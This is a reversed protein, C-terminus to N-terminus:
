ELRGSAQNFKLLKPQGATPPQMNNRNGSATKLTKPKSFSESSKLLQDLGANLAQPNTRFNGLVDHIGKVAYEGRTGHIGALALGGGEMAARVTQADPDQSGLWVELDTGRGSAPGFLDPRKAIVGKIANINEQANGALDIKDRQKATPRVNEANATGIPTDNEDLLAGPLANGAGDTGYAHMAYQKESLGLRGIATQANQASIQLRRQAQQILIPQNKAKADTLQKQAEALEQRSQLYDTMAQQKQYAPSAEDPVVSTTGDGNDVVKLGHQAFTGQAQLGKLSANQKKIALEEPMQQTELTTKNLNAQGEANQLASTQAAQDNEIRGQQEHQLYRNHLTTGPIAAAGGGLIFPAVIDGAKALGRLLPNHIQNLGAGNQKLRQLEAQDTALNTGTMTPPAVSAMPAMPPPASSAMQQPQQDPHNPQLPTDPGTMAPQVKHANMPDSAWQQFGFVPPTAQAIPPAMPNPMMRPDYPPIQGTAM